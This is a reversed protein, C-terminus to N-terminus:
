STSPSPGFTLVAMAIANNLSHLVIPLGLSGSRLRAWALILGLLFLALFGVIQLHVCVFLFSSALVAGTIGWIKQFAGFLLGRFLIEEACPIIFAIGLWAAVPNAQLASRILPITRQLPFPKNTAHVYLQAFGSAILVTVFILLVSILFIKPSGFRPPWRFPEGWPQRAFGALGVAIIPLGAVATGALVTEHLGLWPMSALILLFAIQGEFFLGLWAFSFWLGPFMKARVPLSFPLLAALWVCYIVGFVGGIMGVLRPYLRTAKEPQNSALYCAFLQYRGAKDDDKIEHAKEFSPVAEKFKRERVLSMGKWFNANFDTPRLEAAKGLFRSADAFLGLRLATLGRWYNADFDDPRLKLAEDLANIAAANNKSQYFVYGLWRQGVADSPNLSVAQRLLESAKEFQQKEYYCIGLERYAYADKQDLSLAHNFAEIAEDYHRLRNLCFGLNDFYDKNKSNIAIARQFNQVADEYQEKIALSRGALFYEKDTKAKAPNQNALEQHEQGTASSTFAAFLVLAPVAFRNRIV